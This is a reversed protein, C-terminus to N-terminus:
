DSLKLTNWFKRFEAMESEYAKRRGEVDAATAGGDRKKAEELDLTLKAIRLQQLRLAGEITLPFNHFGISQMDGSTNGISELQERSVCKRAANTLKAFSQLAEGTQKVQILADAYSLSNELEFKTTTDPHSSPLSYLEPLEPVPQPKPPMRLHQGSVVLAIFLFLAMSMVRRM